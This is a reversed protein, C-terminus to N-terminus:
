SVLGQRVQNLRETLVDKLAAREGGSDRHAQVLRASLTEEKLFAQLREGNDPAVPPVTNGDTM